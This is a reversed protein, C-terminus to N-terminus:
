FRSRSRGITPLYGIQYTNGIRLHRDYSGIGIALNYFDAIDSPTRLTRLALAILPHNIGGTRERTVDPSGAAAERDFVVWDVGAKPSGHNIRYCPREVAESFFIEKNQNFKVRNFKVSRNIKRIKDGSLLLRVLREMTARGQDEATLQVRHQRLEEDVLTVARKGEEVAAAIADDDGRQGSFLTRLTEM